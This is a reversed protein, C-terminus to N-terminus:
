VGQDSDSAAPVSEHASPAGRPRPLWIASDTDSGIDDRALPHVETYSSMEPSGFRKFWDGFALYTIGMEGAIDATEIGDYAEDYLLEFDLDEFFTEKFDGFDAEVGDEELFGEAEEILVHAALEEAVCSPRMPERQGLKWIVTVLCVFFKRAFQATYRPQYRPPLMTGILWNDNSWTPGSSRSSDDITTDILVQAAETLARRHNPPLDEEYAQALEM